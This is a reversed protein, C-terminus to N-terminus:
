HIAGAADDDVPYIAVKNGKVILEVRRLSARGLLALYRATGKAALLPALLSSVFPGVLLRHFDKRENIERGAGLTFEEAGRGIPRFPRQRLESKVTM